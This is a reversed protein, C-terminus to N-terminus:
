GRVQVLVMDRELSGGLHEEIREDDEHVRAVVLDVFGALCRDAEGLVPTKKEDDVDDPVPVRNEDDRGARSRGWLPAFIFIDSRSLFRSRFSRGIVVMLM